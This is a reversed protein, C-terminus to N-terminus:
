VKAPREISRKSGLGGTSIWIVVQSFVIIMHGNSMRFKVKSSSTSMKNRGSM